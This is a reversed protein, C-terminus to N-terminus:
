HLAPKDLCSGLRDANQTRACSIASSITEGQWWAARNEPIFGRDNGMDLSRELEQRHRRQRWPSADSFSGVPQLSSM